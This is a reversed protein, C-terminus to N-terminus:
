FGLGLTDAFWQGFAAEPGAIEFAVESMEISAFMGVAFNPSM